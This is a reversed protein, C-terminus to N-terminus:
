RDREEQTKTRGNEAILTGGNWLPGLGDMSDAESGRHREEDRDRRDNRNDTGESADGHRDVLLGGQGTWGSEGPIGRGQLHFLRSVQHLGGKPGGVPDDPERDRRLTHPGGDRANGQLKFTTAPPCCLEGRRAVAEVGTDWKAHIAVRGSVFIDVDLKLTVAGSFHLTRGGM